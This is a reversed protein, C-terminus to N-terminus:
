DEIQQAAYMMSAVTHVFDDGQDTIGIERMADRVIQALTDLSLVM